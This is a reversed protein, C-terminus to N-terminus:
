ENPFISSAQARLRDMRNTEAQAAMMRMTGKSEDRRDAGLQILMDRRDALSAVFSRALDAHAQAEIHLKKTELWVPDSKIQATLAAETIKVGDTAAQDRYKKYLKAEVVEVAMKRRAAISDAEAAVAGYYARLSSQKQFADDLNTENIRTEEIFQNVDLPTM